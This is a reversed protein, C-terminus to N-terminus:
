RALEFPKRGARVLEVIQQRFEPPYPAHTRPM